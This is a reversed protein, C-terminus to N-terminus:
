YPIVIQDVSPALDSGFGRRFEIRVQVLPLGDVADISDSWPGPPASLSARGRFSLRVDAGTPVSSSVYPAQYDPQGTASLWPSVAESAVDTFEFQFDYAYNDGGHASGIRFPDLPNAATGVAYARSDPKSMTTVMLYGFSGNAGNAAPAPAVRIDLLLSDIGNYAFPLIDPFPLYGDSRLNAPDIAYAGSYVRRPREGAKVNSGFVAGLGSDPYMPLGSWPDLTYDPVVHSHSVDIAVLPFQDLIVPGHPRWHIATLYESRDSAAGVDAARHATQLRAGNPNFPTQVPFQFGVGRPPAVALTRVRAPGAQIRGRVSRDYTGTFGETAADGIDLVIASPTNFVVVSEGDSVRLPPNAALDLTASQLYFPVGLPAGAPVPLRQTKFGSVGLTGSDVVIAVPTLALYFTAGLASVPGGGVDLLTAFPLSPTGTLFTDVAQGARVVPAVRLDPAQALLPATLLVVVNLTHM